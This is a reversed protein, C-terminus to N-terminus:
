NNTSCIDKLFGNKKQKEVFKILDLTETSLQNVYGLKRV